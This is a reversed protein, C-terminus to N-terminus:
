YILLIISPHSLHIAFFYEEDSGRVVGPHDLRGPDPEVHAEHVDGATKLGSLRSALWLRQMFLISIIAVIVLGMGVHNFQFGFRSILIFHSYLGHGALIVGTAAFLFVWPPLDESANLFDLPERFHKVNLSAM